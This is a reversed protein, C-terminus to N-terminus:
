SVELTYSFALTMLKPIIKSTVIQKLINENGGITLNGITILINRNVLDNLNNEFLFTFYDLVKLEMLVDQNVFDSGSLNAIISTTLVINGIRKKNEELNANQINNIFKNVIHNELLNNSVEIFNSKASIYSYGKLVLEYIEPDQSKRNINQLVDM